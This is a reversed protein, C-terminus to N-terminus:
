TRRARFAQLHKSFLAPAFPNSGDVGETDLKAQGVHVVPDFIGGGCKKGHKRVQYYLSRRINPGGEGSLDFGGDIAGLDTEAETM